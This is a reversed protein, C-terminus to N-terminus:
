ARSTQQHQNQRFATASSGQDPAISMGGGGRQYHIAQANSPTATAPSTEIFSTFDWSGRGPQAM